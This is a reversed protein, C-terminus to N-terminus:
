RSADGLERESAELDARLRAPRLNDLVQAVGTMADMVEDGTHNPFTGDGVLRRIANMAGALQLYSPEEDPLHQGAYVLPLEAEALAGKGQEVLQDFQHLFAQVQEPTGKAALLAELGQRVLPLLPVLQALVAHMSWSAALTAATQAIDHIAPYVVAIMQTRAGDSETPMVGRIQFETWQGVRDSKHLQYPGKARPM